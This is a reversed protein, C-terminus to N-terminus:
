TLPYIEIGHTTERDAVFPTGRLSAVLSTKGVNGDGVLLVKAEFQAVM